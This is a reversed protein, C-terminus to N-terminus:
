RLIGKKGCGPCVTVIPKTGTATFSTACAPCRAQHVDAGDAPAAESESVTETRSRQGRAVLVVVLVILLLVGAVILLIAWLPLGDDDAGDESSTGPYVATDPASASTFLGLAETSGYYMTVLYKSSALAEAARDVFRADAFESSTVPLTTVLTYPSNSRWVQVGQVAAPLNSTPLVWELVNSAGDRTVTLQVRQNAATIDSPLITVPPTTSSTTTTTTTTTTSTSTTTPTVTEAGQYTFGNALSATQGGTQVTVTVSGTGAPTRATITNANVVVVNTASADGFRVTAGAAFNTGSLTVDTGGEAPGSAPSVSLLTPAVASSFAFHRDLTFRHNGAASNTVEIPVPGIGRHQAAVEMLNPTVFSLRTGDASATAPVTKGGVSVTTTATFGAGDLTLLSGGNISGTSPSLATFQPPLAAQVQVASALTGAQGDRDLVQVRAAGLNLAPLTFATVTSTTAGVAPSAVGNVLIVPKSDTPFNVGSVTLTTGGNVTATAPTAAVPVPVSPLVRVAGGLTAALGGPNVAQLTKSGPSAFGWGVATPTTARLSGSTIACVDTGEVGGFRVSPLPTVIAAADFALDNCGRGEADLTVPNIGTGSLTVVTGGAAALTSASATSLTPAAASSDYTYTASGSAQQGDPNRVVVDASGVAGPPAIVAISSTSTVCLVKANVGRVTVTPLANAIRTGDFGGPTLPADTGTGCPANASDRTIPGFGNGSITLVTGGNTPGSAPSVSSITPAATATYSIANAREVAQGDPNVIRLTATGAAGGVKPPVLFVLCQGIGEDGPCTHGFAQQNAGLLAVGNPPVQVGGVFVTPKAGGAGTAFNTPAAASGPDVPPVPGPPVAPNGRVMVATGGNTPSTPSGPVLTPAAPAASRSYKAFDTPSSDSTVSKGDPNTVVVILNETGTAPPLPSSKTPAEVQFQTLVQNDNVTTTVKAPLGGITVTPVRAQLPGAGDPDPSFHFRAGQITISQGGNSQGTGVSTLDPAASETYRFSYYSAARGDPNLVVVPVVGAAQPPPLVTLTSASTGTVTARFNGFFVQSSSVFGAGNITVAGGGSSPAETASLSNILVTPVYEFADELCANGGGPNTVSLDVKGAASRAPMRVQMTDASVVTFDTVPTSPGTCASAAADLLAVTPTGSGGVHFNGGSVTLLTGGTLPGSSPTTATLSPTTATIFAFTAAETSILGTGGLLSGSAPDFAAPHIVRVNFPNSGVAPKKPTVVTLQTPSSYVVQHAYEDAPFSLPVDGDFAVQVGPVFNSGTVTLTTGGDAPGSSASLGTVVPRPSPSFAFCNSCTADYRAAFGSDVAAGPYKVRVNTTQAAHSPTLVTIASASTGVVVAPATGFLVEPVSNTDFAGGNITVLTGGSISGSTPSVSSIALNAAPREYTFLGSFSTSLGDPNTVRVTVAGAAHAPVSAQISTSSVLAKTARFAQPAPSSALESPTGIEVVAGTLFGSGFITITTGGNTSGTSPSIGTISPAAM